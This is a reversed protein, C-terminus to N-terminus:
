FHSAGASLFGIFFFALYILGILLIVGASIMAWMKATKASAEAGAYDGANYKSDVQTSYIIAVIGAPLCCLVTALISWVLYNDPKPPRSASTVDYPIPGPIRTGGGSTPPPPPAVPAPPPPAGASGFVQSAPLWNPMGECWVLDGPLIEGRSYRAIADEKPYNGLQQGNRAVHYNM